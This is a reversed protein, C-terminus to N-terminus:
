AFLSRVTKLILLVDQTLSVCELYELNLSLKHPLVVTRYYQEPNPMRSLIQEEHRYVISAPDTIGPLANLVRRQQPSYGSVFYEVEPRPGVLSMDGKLVNWLQPVEDIKYRRLWAGLRTIRPNGFITLPPAKANNGDSMTRFKVLSFTKGDKGVRLQTFFVPGSSFVKQLVAVFALCPTLLTLAIAACLADLLRKGHRRYFTNQGPIGDGAPRVGTTDIGKRPDPHLPTSFQM